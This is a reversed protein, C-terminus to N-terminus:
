REWVMEWRQGESGVALRLPREPGRLGLAKEVAPSQVQEERKRSCRERLAERPCSGQARTVVATFEMRGIVGDPGM